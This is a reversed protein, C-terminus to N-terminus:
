NVMPSGTGTSVRVLERSEWKDQIITITNSLRLGTWERINDGIEEKTMWAKKRRKRDVANNTSCTMNINNCVVTIQSTKCHSLYKVTVFLVWLSAKHSQNSRWKYFIGLIKRYSGVKVAQIAKEIGASLTWSECAYLFISTVLSHM